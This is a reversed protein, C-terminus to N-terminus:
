RTACRPCSTWWSRAARARSRRRGVPPSPRGRTTEAFTSAPASLLQADQRWGLARLHGFSARRRRPREPDRPAPAALPGVREVAEVAEVYERRAAPQPTDRLQRWAALEASRLLAMRPVAANHGPARGATAQKYLAYLHLREEDNFLEPASRYHACAVDFSDERRM